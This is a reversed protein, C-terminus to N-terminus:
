PLPKVVLISVSVIRIAARGSQSKGLGLGVFLFIILSIIVRRCQLWGIVLKRDTPWDVCFSMGVSSAFHM